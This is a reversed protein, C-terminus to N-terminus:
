YNLKLTAGHAIGNSDVIPELYVMGEDILPRIARMRQTINLVEEGNELAQLIEKQGKTLKLLM